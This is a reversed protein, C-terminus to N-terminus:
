FHKKFLPKDPTLRLIAEKIINEHAAVKEPDLKDTLVGEEILTVIYQFKYGRELQKNLFKIVDVFHVKDVGDFIGDHILFRPANYNKIISYFLVSLNYVLTRGRNKGKGFKEPDNLIDIKLKSKVRPNSDISFSFLRSGTKTSYLEQYISSFIKYFELEIDRINERLEIINSEIKSVEQQLDSVQKSYVTYTKIQGELNSAEKEKSVILANADALNKIASATSLIRFIDARQNDLEDIKFKNNEIEKNLKDIEELIFDKRSSILNKRFKVVEELEKRIKTGLLEQFDNYINEVTSLRISLNNSLSEKYTDIKKQHSFNEFSLKNITKTLENAKEANLKQSSALKYAKIRERIEEIETKLQKIKDEVDSITKLQHVSIFNKAATNALKKKEDIEDTKVNLNYILRNDINLLFLHYQLLSLESTYELYAFPDPYEKKNTKLITVYFALLRRLWDPSYFGPYDDRAFIIDCLTVRFDELRYEKYKGNNAKLKVLRSNEFSRSITYHNKRSEFELYVTLGKLFGIDYATYLRPNKDKSFDSGLTFDILDLFSSKGLNNLSDKKKGQTKDRYGYVYNIGDRFTIDSFYKAPRTYFKKLYM